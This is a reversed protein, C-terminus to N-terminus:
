RKLRRISPNVISAIGWCVGQVDLRLGRQHTRLFGRGIGEGIVRRQALDDLAHFRFRAITEEVREDFVECGCEAALVRKDGFEEYITQPKPRTGYPSTSAEHVVELNGEITSRAFCNQVALGRMMGFPDTLEEGSVGSKLLPADLAVTANGKKIRAPGDDAVERYQGLLWHPISRASERDHSYKRRSRAGFQLTQAGLIPQAM